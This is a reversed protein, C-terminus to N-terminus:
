GVRWKEERQIHLRINIFPGPEPRPKKNPIPSHEHMRPFTHFLPIQALIGYSTIKTQYILPNASQPLTRPHGFIRANNFITTALSAPLIGASSPTPGTSAVRRIHRAELARHHQAVSVWRERGPSVQAAGQPAPQPSSPIPQPSRCVASLPALLHVAPNPSM